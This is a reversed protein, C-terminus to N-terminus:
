REVAVVPTRHELHENGEVIVSDTASFGGTTLEIFNQNEFGTEVLRIEAHRGEKLFIYDEDYRHVLASKPVYTTREVGSGYLKGNVFMGSRINGGDVNAIEASVEFTMTEDDIYPGIYGIDSMITEDVAPIICKVLDGTAVQDSYEELSMGEKFWKEYFDVKLIADNVAVGILVIFGILAVMTMATGTLHMAIIAGKEIVAKVFKLPFHIKSIHHGRLFYIKM